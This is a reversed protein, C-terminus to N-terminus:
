AEDGGDKVMRERVGLFSLQGLACGRIGWRHYGTCKVGQCIVVM